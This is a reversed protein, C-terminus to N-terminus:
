SFFHSLLAGGTFGLQQLLRFRNPTVGGLAIAKKDKIAESLDKLNFAAKYGPKSISDFVPSLFFYDFKDGEPIEELSHCSISLSKVQSPPEPNRSNLHVGGLDLKGVLEFHDHLKIKPYLDTNVENLLKEIEIAKAGPKRIHVFDAEGLSLIQNIRGAEERFFDPRTIAIILFKNM